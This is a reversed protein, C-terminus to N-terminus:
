TYLMIEPSDMFLVATDTATQNKFINVKSLAYDEFTNYRNIHDPTINLLVAVNPKFTDILDLQFSSIELVIYDLGPK